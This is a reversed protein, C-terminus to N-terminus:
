HQFSRQSRRMEAALYEERSQVRGFPMSPKHDWEDDWCGARLWTAPHKYGQWDPKHAIYDAIAKLMVEIPAQKIAKEFAKKADAKGKKNPYSKWFTEFKDDKTM